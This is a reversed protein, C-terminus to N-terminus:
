VGQVTQHIPRFAHQPTSSWGHNAHGRINNHNSVLINEVENASDSQDTTSQYSRDTPANFPQRHSKNRAHGQHPQPGWTTNGQVQPAFPMTRNVLPTRQVGGVEMGGVVAALNVNNMGIGMGFTRSQQQRQQDDNPHHGIALGPINEHGSPQPALLAKRKFKDLQLKLKQYEKERDRSADQLERIKRRELELDRELESSATHVM